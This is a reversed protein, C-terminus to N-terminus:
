EQSPKQEEAQKRAELRDAIAKYEREMELLVERAEKHGTLGAQILCQRQLSRFERHPM